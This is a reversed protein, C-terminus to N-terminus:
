ASGAQFLGEQPDLLFYIGEAAVQLIIFAFGAFAISALEVLLWSLLNSAAPEGFLFYLRVLFSIAAIGLVTWSFSKAWGALTNLRILDAGRSRPRPPAAQQPVKSLREQLVAHIVEFADDSWVQRDNQQWITLLEDTEKERMQSLLYAKRLPDNQAPEEM